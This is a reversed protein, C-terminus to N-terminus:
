FTLGQNQTVTSRHIERPLQGPPAPQAICSLWVKTQDSSKNEGIGGPKGDLSWFSSTTRDRRFLRRSRRLKCGMSQSLVIYRAGWIIPLRNKSRSGGAPILPGRRTESSGSRSPWALGTEEKPSCSGVTSDQATFRRGISLISLEDM